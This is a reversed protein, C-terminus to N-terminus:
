QVCGNAEVRPKKHLKQMSSPAADSTLATVTAQAFDLETLDIGQQAARAILKLQSQKPIVGATGGKEKPQTWRYVTSFSLGAIKATREIGGM